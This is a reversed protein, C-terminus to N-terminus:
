RRRLSQFETKNPQDPCTRFFAVGAMLAAAGISLGIRVFMWIWEVNTYSNMMPDVAHAGIDEGSQLQKPNYRVLVEAGTPLAAQGELVAPVRLRNEFEWKTM